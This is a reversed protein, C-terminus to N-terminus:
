TYPFVFLAPSIFIEREILIVMGTVIMIFPAAKVFETHLKMMIKLSLAIFMSSLPFILRQSLPTDPSYDSEYNEKMCILLMAVINFTCAYDIQIHGKRQM